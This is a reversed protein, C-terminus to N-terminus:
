VGLYSNIFEEASMILADNPYFFWPNNQEEYLIFTKANSMLALHSLGSNIGIYVSATKLLNWKEALSYNTCNIAGDFSRDGINYPKFRAIINKIHKNSLTRNWSVATRTDFQCVIHKEQKEPLDKAKLYSRPNWYLTGYKNPWECTWSTLATQFVDFKTESLKIKSNFLPILFTLMERVSDNDSYIFDCEHHHQLINVLDGLKSLKSHPIINM